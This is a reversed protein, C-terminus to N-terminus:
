QCGMVILSDLHGMKFNFGHGRATLKRERYLKREKMIQGLIAFFVFLGRESSLKLSTNGPGQMLM